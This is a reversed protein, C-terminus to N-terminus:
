QILYPPSGLFSRMGLPISWGSFVQFFWASDTCLSEHILDCSGEWFFIRLLFSKKGKSARLFRQFDRSRRPWPCIQLVVIGWSTRLKSGPRGSAEQAHEETLMPMMTAGEVVDQWPPNPKSLTQHSTSTVCFKKNRWRASFFYFFM